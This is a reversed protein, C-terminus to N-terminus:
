GGVNKSFQNQIEDQCYALWEMMAKVQSIRYQYIIREYYQEKTTKSFSAQLSSLWEGCLRTQEEILKNSIETGSIQAFYLKALFEQRMDRGHPVPSIVWKLFTQRGIPTIQYEKRMLHIEGPVIKSTLLGVDELKDLLAYLQSQKINWILSIGEFNRLKKYLDYGHIPSENLFGLLIYELSLPTQTRPM